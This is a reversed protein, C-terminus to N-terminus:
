LSRRPSMFANTSSSEIDAPIGVAGKMLNVIRRMRELHDSATPRIDSHRPFHSAEFIDPASPALRGVDEQHEDLLAKSHSM